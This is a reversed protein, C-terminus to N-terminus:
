AVLIIAEPGSCWAKFKISLRIEAVIDHKSWTHEQFLSSTCIDCTAKRTQKVKVKEKIVLSITSPLFLTFPCIYIITDEFVSEVIFKTLVSVDAISTITFVPIGLGVAVALIYSLIIVNNTKFEKRRLKTSLALFFSCAIVVCKYLTLVIIWYVLWTSHCFGTITIMPSTKSESVTKTYRPPDICSWLLSLLVDVSTFAGVYGILAHDAM